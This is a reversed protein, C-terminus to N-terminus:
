KLRILCGEIYTRHASTLSPDAAYYVCYVENESVPVLAQAGGTASSLCKGRTRFYPAYDALQFHLGNDSTYFGVKRTPTEHRNGCAMLYKGNGLRVIAPFLGGIDSEQPISWTKGHDHSEVWWLNNGQTQWLKADRKESDIRAYAVISGDPRVVYAAESFYMSATRGPVPDNFAVELRGWTNGGDQSRFFGSGYSIGEEKPVESPYQYGPLILDGNALAVVTGMVGGNAGNPFPLEGAVDFSKGGDRSIKLPFSSTRKKFVAGSTRDGSHHTQVMEILLLRDDPLSALGAGMGIDPNESAIITEPANSWTKGLDDSRFLYAKSGPMLDGGDCFVTLLSREGVRVIGMPLMADPITDNVVSSRIVDLTRDAIADAHCITCSLAVTVLIAKM